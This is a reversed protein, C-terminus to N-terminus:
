VTSWAMWAQMLIWAQSMILLRLSSGFVRGSAVAPGTFFTRHTSPRSESRSLMHIVTPLIMLSSSGTCWVNAYAPYRSLPLVYLENEGGNLYQTVDITFSFYGGRHFGARQGNVFVIAEYDVAGFNLLTSEGTWDAPVAFTTQYWSYFMSEGQIGSLGSELCFPVLVSRDFVQGVPPNNGADLSSANQYTWVGNLSQWQSRQLLPRPYQPWPNTGVEYTWPTDLPPTQLQYGSTANDAQRPVSLASTLSTSLLAQIALSSRM